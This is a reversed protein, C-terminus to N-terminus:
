ERYTDEGGFFALQSAAYIEELGIEDQASVSRIEGFVGTNEMAKFLEMGVVTQPVSDADLLDGYLADPESYWDLMRQEDDDSLTDCKSLLNLMPLQLRFQVLAGLTMASIFGNPTKCLSPDSLYVLMSDERGFADVTMGSSERFAFLELQGPTDILVYDTSYEAFVRMMKDINVAMLDAAVIQAGNPGLGYEEMVEGLNIWERIDIDPDYPLTEAGPDMNITIADVGNSDLWRRYAGVLTSKGSGATGVFFVNKM